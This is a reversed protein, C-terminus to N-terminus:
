ILVLGCGGAEAFDAATNYGLKQIQALVDAELLSDLTTLPPPSWANDCRFYM